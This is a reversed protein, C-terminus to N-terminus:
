VNSDQIWVRNFDIPARDTFDLMGIKLALLCKHSKSYFFLMPDGVRIWVSSQLDTISKQPPMDIFIFM